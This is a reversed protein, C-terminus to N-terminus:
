ASPRTTPLLPALLGPPFPKILVEVREPLTDLEDILAPTTDGTMFLTRGTLAPFEDELIRYLEIGSMGPMRIDTLIADVDAGSRLTELAEEGSRACLVQVDRRYRRSLASLLLPEDDVILLTRRDQANM